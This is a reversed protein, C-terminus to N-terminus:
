LMVGARWGKSSPTEDFLLLASILGGAFMRRWEALVARYVLVKNQKPVGAREKLKTFRM